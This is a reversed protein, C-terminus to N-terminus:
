NNFAVHHIRSRMNTFAVTRICKCTRPTALVLCASSAAVCYFRCNLSILPFCSCLVIFHHVTDLATISPLFSVNHISLRSVHFYYTPPMFSQHTLKNCVSPCWRNGTFRITHPTRLTLSHHCLCDSRWVALERCRLRRLTLPRSCADRGM